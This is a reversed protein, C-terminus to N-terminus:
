HALLILHKAPVDQETAMYHSEEGDFFENDIMKETDIHFTVVRNTVHSKVEVISPFGIGLSDAYGVLTKRGKNYTLDVTNIRVVSM